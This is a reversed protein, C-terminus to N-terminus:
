SEPNDLNVQADSAVILMLSLIISIKMMVKDKTNFGSNFGADNLFMESLYDDVSLFATAFQICSLFPFIDTAIAATILVRLIL